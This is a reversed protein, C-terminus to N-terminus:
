SEHIKVPYHESYKNVMEWMERRQAELRLPLHDYVDSFMENLHPKLERRARKLANQIEQQVRTRLAGEKEEDWLGRQQLYGRLRLTANYNKWQEVQPMDQYATQDDSTSHSGLRPSSELYFM